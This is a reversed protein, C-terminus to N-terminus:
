EKKTADFAINLIQLRYYLGDISNTIRQKYKNIEEQTKAIFYGHNNAVIPIKLNDVIDRILKRTHAYHRTEDDEPIISALKVLPIPNKSNQLATLIKIRQQKFLEKKIESKQKNYNILM